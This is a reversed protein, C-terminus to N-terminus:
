LLSVLSIAKLIADLNAPSVAFKLPIVHNLLAQSTTRTGPSGRTGQFTSGSKQLLAAVSYNHYESYHDTSLGHM